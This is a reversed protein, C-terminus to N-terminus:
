SIAGELLHLRSATEITIIIVYNLYRVTNESGGRITKISATVRPGPLLAVFWQGVYLSIVAGVIAGLLFTAISILVTRQRTKAVPRKRM